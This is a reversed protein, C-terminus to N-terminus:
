AAVKMVLRVIRAAPKACAGTRWAEACDYAQEWHNFRYADKQNPTWIDACEGTSLYENGDKVLFSM